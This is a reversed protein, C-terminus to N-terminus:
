RNGKGYKGVPFSAPAAVTLRLQEGCECFQQEEYASVYSLIKEVPKQCGTCEFAFLPSV